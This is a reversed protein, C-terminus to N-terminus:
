GDGFVATRHENGACVTVADGLPSQQISHELASHAPQQDCRGTVVMRPQGLGRGRHDEDVTARSAQVGVQYADVVASGRASRHAMENVVPVAPDGVDAVRRCDAGGGCAQRAVTVREGVGPDIHSLLQDPNVSVARLQGTGGGRRQEIEVLRRGRDEAGRGTAREAHHGREMRVAAGIHREDPNPSKAIASVSCGAILTM